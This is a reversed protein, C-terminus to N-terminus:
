RGSREIVLDGSFSEATIRPGGSGITFEMRRPRKRGGEAPAAEPRLTLPFASDIDGSFTEVSLSANTGAPLVLRVTGSHSRFDYRGAPDVTGAYTVDGSV